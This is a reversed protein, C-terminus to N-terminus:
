EDDGFPSDGGEDGADGEDAETEQDEGEDSEDGDADDADADAACKVIRFLSVYAIELSKGKEGKKRKKKGNGGGKGSYEFERERLEGSVAVIDGKALGREEVISALKENLVFTVFSTLYKSDKGGIPNDAVRISCLRAPTKGKTEFFRPDEVLRGDVITHSNAM